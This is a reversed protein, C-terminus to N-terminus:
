QPPDKVCRKFIEIQVKILLKTTKSNKKFYSHKQKSKQFYLHTNKVGFSSLHGWIVNLATKISFKNFNQSMKVWFLDNKLSYIKSSQGWTVESSELHSCICIQGIEFSSTFCKEGLFGMKWIISKKVKVELSRLHGWNVEVKGRSVM